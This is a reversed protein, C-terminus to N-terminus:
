GPRRKRSKKRPREGNKKRPSAGFDESLEAFVERLSVALVDAPRLADSASVSAM